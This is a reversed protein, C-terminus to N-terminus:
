PRTAILLSAPGPQRVRHIDSFGADRLWSTYEPESYSSGGRTGVLMNLAFLTAFRPATKDPELIFDQIVFRGGPALARYTREFLTRNEEASFMHCIASVLILDYNEGLPDRLMDGDRTGVQDSLGADRIHGQTIPVVEPLDMVTANLGPIARAFAISYAGSGGGLDLMQGIGDTGVARVVAQAREKANRDMAAIFAVVAQPNRSRPAVTTGGHVASTLTSWTDWLNVTHMLGARANNPSGEVFFRASVDTNHFSAERKELLKLSVLANLLMETARADAHIRQAVQQATAGRGVTTFIDLELASLVARSAMFGRITENLDDPLIGAQDRAKLMARFHDRHEASMARMAPADTWALREVLKGDRLHSSVIERVDAERVKHYWVGEPYVIFIPGEDCLGLCGCTSIQVNNDLDQSIVQSELARLVQWSGNSPCSTVGEPKEQTCVFVHHRFPEM